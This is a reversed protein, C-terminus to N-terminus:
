PVVTIAHPKKRAETWGGKINQWFRATVPIWLTAWEVACEYISWWCAVWTGLSLFTFIHIHICVIHILPFNEHITCSRFSFVTHHIYVAHGMTSLQFHLSSAESHGIWKAVHVVHAHPAHSLIGYWKWIGLLWKCTSDNDLKLPRLWKICMSWKARSDTCICFKFYDPYCQVPILGFHFWNTQTM